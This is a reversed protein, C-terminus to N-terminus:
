FICLMSTGLIEHTMVGIMSYSMLFLLIATMAIDVSIKLILKKNM